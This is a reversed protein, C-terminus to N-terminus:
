VHQNLQGPHRSRITQVRFLYRGIVHITGSRFTLVLQLHAADACNLRQLSLSTWCVRLYPSFRGHPGDSRQDREVDLLSRRYLVASAPGGHAGLPTESRVACTGSAPSLSGRAWKLLRTRPTRSFKVPTSPGAGSGPWRGLLSENQRGVPEVTCSAPLGPARSNGRHACRRGARPREWKPISEQCQVKGRYVLHAATDRRQSPFDNVSDGCPRGEFSISLPM